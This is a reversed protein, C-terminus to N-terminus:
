LVAGAASAWATTVVVCELGRCRLRVGATREAPQAWGDWGPWQPRVCSFDEQESRGSGPGLVRPAGAMGQLPHWRLRGRLGDTTQFGRLSFRVARRRAGPPRPIEAGPGDARVKGGNVVKGGGVRHGGVVRGGHFGICRGGGGSSRFTGGGSGGLAQRTARRAPGVRKLRTPGRQGDTRERVGNGREVDM